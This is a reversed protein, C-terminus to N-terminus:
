KQIVIRWLTDSVKSIVLVRCGQKRAAVPITEYSPPNDLIVELNEGVSLRKLARATYFEPYLCTLGRVNITYSDEKTKVLSVPM